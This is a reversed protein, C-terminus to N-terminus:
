ASRHTRGTSTYDDRWDAVMVKAETLCSFLEVALLEDRVKSGFSEVFPDAV